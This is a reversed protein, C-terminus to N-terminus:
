RAAAATLLFTKLAPRDQEPAPFHNSLMTDLFPDRTEVVRKALQETVQTLAHCRTCRTEFVGAADQATAVSASFVIGLALPIGLFVKM